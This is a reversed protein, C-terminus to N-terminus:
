RGAISRPGRLNLPPTSFGPSSMRASRLFGATPAPIQTVPVTREGYTVTMDSGGTWPFLASAM